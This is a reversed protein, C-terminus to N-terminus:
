TKEVKVARGILTGDWKDNELEHATMSETFIIEVTKGPNFEFRWKNNYIENSDLM